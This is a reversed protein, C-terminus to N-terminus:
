KFRFRIYGFMTNQIKSKSTYEKDNPDDSARGSLFERYNAHSEDSSDTLTDEEFEYDDFSSSSEDNSDFSSWNDNDDFSEDSEGPVSDNESNYSDNSGFYICSEDDSTTFDEEQSHRDSYTVLEMGNNQEKATIDNNIATQETEESESNSFQISEGDTEVEEASYDVYDSSHGDCHDDCCEEYNFHESENDEESSDPRQIAFENIQTDEESVITGNNQSAFFRDIYSESESDSNSASTPLKTDPVLLKQKKNPTKTTGNQRKRKKTKTPPTSVKRATKKLKSFTANEETTAPSDYISPTCDSVVFNSTSGSIKQSRKPVIVYKKSKNSNKKELGNHANPAAKPLLTQLAPLDATIQSFLYFKNNILM